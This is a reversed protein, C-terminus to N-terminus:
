LIHLNKKLRLADRLAYGKEDNDFYCFSPIKQDKWQQVRKKWLMLQQSSYSGRYASRPGHLRLYTFPATIELPTLRGNLDSICLAIKYKKLLDYIADTEWSEHRFELVYLYGKPLNQFFEELRESNKKFSPPLQFLIPGLKKKFLLIRQFFRETTEKSDKLKKTHTIYNSAKISFLFMSPTAKVWSKVTEESPLRYFTNNIEVTSFFDAYYRLRKGSPLAEPYFIRNWHEYHWGSTGIFIEPYGKM